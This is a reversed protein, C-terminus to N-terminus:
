RFRRPESCVDEGRSDHASANGILGLSLGVLVFGRRLMIFLVINAVEAVAAEMLMRETKPSLLVLDYILIPLPVLMLTWLIVHLMFAQQTKVDDEFRPPTLIRKLWTM